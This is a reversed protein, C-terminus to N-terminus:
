NIISLISKIPQNCRARGSVGINFLQSRILNRSGLIDGIGVSPPSPFLILTAMDQITSESLFQHKVVWNKLIDANRLGVAVAASAKGKLM